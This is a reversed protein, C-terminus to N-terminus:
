YVPWRGDCGACIFKLRDWQEAQVASVMKDTGFMAVGRTHEGARAEAPTMLASAPLLTNYQDERASRAALVEVFAAGNNGVDIAAIRAARELQVVLTQREGPEGAWGPNGVRARHLVNEAPHGATESSFSVVHRIPLLPM